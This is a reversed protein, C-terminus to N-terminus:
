KPSLPLLLAQDEIIALLKNRVATAICGSQLHFLTLFNGM